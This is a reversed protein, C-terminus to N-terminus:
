QVMRVYPLPLVDWIIVSSHSSLSSGPVPWVKAEIDALSKALEAAVSARRRGAMKDEVRSM